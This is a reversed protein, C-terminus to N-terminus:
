GLVTFGWSKCLKVITMTEEDGACVLANWKHNANVSGVEDQQRAFLYAEEEYTLGYHVICPVKTFGMVLYANARHQGDFIWYRNDRFSVEIPRMRNIDFKEVIKRIREINLEKQYPAIDLKDLELMTINGIEGNKNMIDLSRAQTASTSIARAKSSIVSRKMNMM